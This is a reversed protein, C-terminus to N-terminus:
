LGLEARTQIFSLISDRAVVGVLRGEALVPLQHVDKQAMMQLAAWIEEEPKVWHVKELPTMVREVQIQPWDARPAKRLDHLTVIGVLREDTVVPLFRRLNTLIHEEVLDDLALDRSVHPWDRNVVESVKHGRLLERLTFQRWSQAAASELFWGIFVFWLGNFFGGSFIMALGGIILLFAVGRGIASAIQTAKRLDKSAAWILSRLVRGGDLPFGPILNFVALGVNVTALWQALAAIPHNWGRTEWWLAGFALGLVLSTFPGVVTFRFEDRASRPEDTIQSVGGFIFLRIGQVPIGSRMAVLSHALEHALVSAFFLLSTILAMGWYLGPPWGPYGLPFYSAALVWTVLVFIVFWSYDLRIEIGWLRGLRLSDRM